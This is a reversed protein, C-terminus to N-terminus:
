LDEDRSSFLLEQLPRDVEIWSLTPAIESLSIAGAKTGAEALKILAALAIAEVAFIVAGARGLRIPTPRIWPFRHEPKAAPGKM